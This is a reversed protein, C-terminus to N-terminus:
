GGRFTILYFTAGQPDAVVAIRGVDGGDFPPATVKGGLATLREVAADCDPVRFYLHWHAPTEGWDASMPLMGGWDYGEVAFMQYHGAVPHSKERVKWGFMQAYFQAAKRSDRTALEVWGIANNEHVAAAGAHSRPQWLCFMAGEPDAIVAMRGVDMVDMPAVCQTAGLAVARAASEDVSAVAFYVAWYPPTGSAKQDAMMTYAAGVDREALQFISYTGGEPIPVDRVSWGFLEAYFRKAADQDSTALEYWCPAGAPYGSMTTM